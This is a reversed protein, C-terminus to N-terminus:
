RGAGNIMPKDIMGKEVGWKTAIAKYDGTEMLHQVAMRLSEALPSGKPVPWAYLAKDFVDGAPVLAGASGKITFLTVPSDASMADINGAILAKTLDDQREYVVKEISALGAAECADNKGPIEVTEQVAGKTVGVRLGCAANPDVSSGAQQAWLTGTEFYNVFDVNAEREKTDTFSSMGLNFDGKAVLGLISDFDEVERYDPTLGLTKAVANMM